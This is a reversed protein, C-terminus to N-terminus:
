FLELQVGSNVPIFTISEGIFVITREGFKTKQAKYGRERKGKSVADWHEDRNMPKLDDKYLEIDVVYHGWCSLWGEKGSSKTGTTVIERNQFFFTKNVYGEAINQCQSGECMKEFLHKPVEVNM